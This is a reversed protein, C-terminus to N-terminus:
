KSKIEQDIIKKLEELVHKDLFIFPKKTDSQKFLDSDQIAKKVIDVIAYKGIKQKACHQILADVAEWRRVIKNKNSTYAIFCYGSPDIHFLLRDNPKHYIEIFVWSGAYNYHPDRGIVKASGDEAKEIIDHPHGTIPRVRIRVEYEAQAETREKKRKSKIKRVHSLTIQEEKWQSLFKKQDNLNPFYKEAFIEAVDKPIAVEGTEYRLITPRSKNTLRELERLSSLGIKRKSTIIEPISQNDM